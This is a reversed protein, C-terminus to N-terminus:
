RWVFDTKSVRQYLEDLLQDAQESELFRIMVTHRNLDLGAVDVVITAMNNFRDFPGDKRQLSQIKDIPIYSQQRMLWGSRYVLTNQSFGYRMAQVSRRAHLWSIPVLGYVLLAWLQVPFWLALVAGSLIFLDRRFIRRWGRWAVGQWQQVHLDWQPQIQGIFWQARQKAILPAIWRAANKQQHQNVNGGATAARIAIRDFLRHLPSEAVSLMQIRQKPVTAQTQTLLGYQMFLSQGKHKLTFGFYTVLMFIISLVRIFVVFSILGLFILIVVSLPHAMGWDVQPLIPELWVELRDFFRDLTRTQGLIGFAFAVVVMGKNSILGAKILELISLSLIVPETVKSEEAQAIGSELETMATQKAQEIKQRIETVAAMSLVRMVAEPKGGSASELELQAVGLLRHLPNRTLNLNQIRRYQVHRVNKFLVGERIVIEGPQLQYRYVAYQVIAFVIAPLVFVAGIFEYSDSGGALLALLIPVFFNKVMEFIIFLWSIPHLQLRLPEQEPQKSGANYSDTNDPEPNSPTPKDM